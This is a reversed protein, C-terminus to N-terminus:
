SEAVIRVPKTCHETIYILAGNQTHTLGLDDGTLINLIYEDKTEEFTVRPSDTDALVNPANVSSVEIGDIWIPYMKEFQVTVVADGAPMIFYGNLLDGYEDYEEVEENNGYTVKLSGKYYHYGDADNPKFKLGVYDGEAAKEIPNDDFDCFEVTGENENCSVTFTYLPSENYVADYTANGAVSTVTTNWNSFTYRIDNLVYTPPEPVTPDAGYTLKYSENTSDGNADKFNFVIDYLRDKTTYEAEYTANAAVPRTFTPWGSFTYVTTDDQYWTGALKPAANSIYEESASYPVQADATKHVGNSDYYGFTIEYTNETETFQAKYVVNGTVDAIGESPTAKNVWKDFGYTYQGSPDEKTPDEPIDINAAATGAFYYESSIPTEQADDNVFKVLYRTLVKTESHTETDASNPNQAAPVSATFSTSAPATETEATETVVLTGDDKSVTVTPATVTTTHTAARSCEYTATASTYGTTESGTWTWKVFQWDHGKAPIALSSQQIENTANEDSFYKGCGENKCHYYEKTGPKECTADVLKSHELNHATEDPGAVKHGVIKIETQKFFYVTASTGSLDRWQNNASGSNYRVYYHNGSGSTYYMGNGTKTWTVYTTVTDAPAMYLRHNQGTSRQGLSYTANSHKEDNTFNPATSHYTWIVSNDNEFIYIKESDFSLNGRNIKVTSDGVHYYQGSYDAFNSSLAHGDGAANTNVILYKCGDEFSDTSDMLIFPYISEVPATEDEIEEPIAETVSKATGNPSVTDAM